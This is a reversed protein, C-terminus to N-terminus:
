EAFTTDGEYGAAVKWLYGDPDTFYGFYGGWAARQAPKAIKGGGREAEALVADVRAESRVIYSFTIGRFGKGDAAAGADEALRDWPYLGLASSGNGLSFSAWENQDQQIPWGLGESYFRKARNLDRVGLTIGSVHPKM